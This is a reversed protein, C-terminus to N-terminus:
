SSLFERLQDSRVPHRLKGLAKAEIQRIRERTVKFIHGVEELTYSYGGDLGYRLKMVERERYSLDTMAAELRARLRESDMAVAAHPNTEEDEAMMDSFPQENDGVPADVSSMNGGVQLLHAVHATKRGILHAIQEVSPEAHLEQFLIRQAKRIQALDDHMHVPIRITRSQEMVARTIRQRIWWTAYTSFKFGREVEYKDVARILGANGEGILDLFEVGRNRYKKAISVVLRLNAGAMRKRLGDLYEEAANIGAVRLDLDELSEMAYCEIRAQEVAHEESRPATRRMERLEAIIPDIAKQPFPIEFLLEAIKERRLAMSARLSEIRGGPAGEAIEMASEANADLLHKATKLNQLIWEPVAKSEKGEGEEEEGEEPEAPVGKALKRHLAAQVYGSGLASRVYADRAADIDTALAIEEKRSLLPIEGMQMLYLRIFDDVLADGQADNQPNTNEEGGDDDDSEVGEDERDFDIGSSVGAEDAHDAGAALLRFAPNEDEHFESDLSRIGLAM